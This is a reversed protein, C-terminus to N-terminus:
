KNEVDAADVLEYTKVLERQVARMLLRVSQWDALFLKLKPYSKQRELPSLKKNSEYEWWHRFDAHWKELFPRLVDKMMGHVVIGLHNKKKGIRGVPFRRMIGRAEQFFKYLSDLSESLVEGDFNGANRDSTKGVVAVRTVLETYLEWACQRDEEALRAGLKVLKLDLEFSGETLHM